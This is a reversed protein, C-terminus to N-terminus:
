SGIWSIVESPLTLIVTGLGDYTWSGMMLDTISSKCPMPAQVQVQTLAVGTLQTISRM